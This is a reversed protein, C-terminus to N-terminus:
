AKWRLDGEETKVADLGEPASPTEIPEEVPTFTEDKPGDPIAIETESKVEDPQIGYLIAGFIQTLLFRAKMVDEATADKMNRLAPGILMLAQSREKKSLDVYMATPGFLKAIKIIARRVPRPPNAGTVVHVALKRVLEKQESTFYYKM